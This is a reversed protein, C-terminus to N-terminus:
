TIILLLVHIKLNPNEFVRPYWCHKSSHPYWRLTLRIRNARSRTNILGKGCLYITIWKRSKTKCLYFIIKQGEIDTGEKTCDYLQYLAPKKKRNKSIGFISHITSLALTKRKGTAKSNVTFPNININKEPENM